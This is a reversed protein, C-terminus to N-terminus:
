LVINGAARAVLEGSYKTSDSGRHGKWVHGESTWIWSRRPVSLLLGWHVVWICLHFYFFCFINLLPPLFVCSSHLFGRLLGSLWSPTIVWKSGSMRCHSTLLTELIVVFLAQQPSPIGASSNWIRFSSTTLTSCEIHWCVQFVLCHGSSQFLDTKM